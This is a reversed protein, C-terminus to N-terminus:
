RPGVKRGPWGEKAYKKRRPAFGDEEGVEEQRLRKRGVRRWGSEGCGSDPSWPTKRQNEAVMGETSTFSVGTTPKSLSTFNICAEPDDDPNIVEEDENFTLKATKNAIGELTVNTANFNLKRNLTTNYQTLNDLQRETETESFKRVVEDSDEEEEEKDRSLDRIASNATDPSQPLEQCDEVGTMMQLALRMVHIQSIEM